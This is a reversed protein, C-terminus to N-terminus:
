GFKGRFIGVHPRSDPDPNPTLSPNPNPVISGQTLLRHINRIRNATEPHSEDIVFGHNNKEDFVGRGAEYKLVRDDYFLGLRTDCHSRSRSCYLRRRIISRAFTSRKM